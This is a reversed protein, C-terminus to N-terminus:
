KNRFYLSRGSGRRIGEWRGVNGRLIEYSIDTNNEIQSVLPGHFYIFIGHFDKIFGVVRRPLLMNVHFIRVRSPLYHDVFYM